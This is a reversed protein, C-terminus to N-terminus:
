RFKGNKRVYEGLRLVSSKYNRRSIDVTRGSFLVFQHFDRDIERVQELNVLFSQHCRWFDTAPLTEQIDDLKATFEYIKKNHAMHLYVNRGKSEFYDIQSNPVREIKDHHKMLFYRNLVKQEQYLIVLREKLEKEQFPETFYASPRFILSSQLKQMTKGFFIISSYFNISRVEAAIKVAGADDIDLIFIDYDTLELRKLKEEGDLRYFDIIEYNCKIHDWLAMVTKGVDANLVADM